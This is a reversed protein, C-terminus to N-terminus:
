KMVSRCHTEHNTLYLLDRVMLTVFESKNNYHKDDFPYFCKNVLKGQQGRQGIARISIIPKIVEHKTPKEELSDETNRLVTPYRGRVDTLM